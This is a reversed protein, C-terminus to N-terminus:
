EAADDRERDQKLLGVLYSMSADNWADISPNGDEDVYEKETLYQELSDYGLVSLVANFNEESTACYFGYLYSEDLGKLNRFDEADYRYSRNYGSGEYDTFGNADLLDYVRLNGYMSLDAMEYGDIETAYETKNRNAESQASHPRLFVMVPIFAACAAALAIAAASFYNRTGHKKQMADAGKGGARQRRGKDTM